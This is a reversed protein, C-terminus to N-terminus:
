PVQSKLWTKKVQLHILFVFTILILDSTNWPNTFFEEVMAFLKRASNIYQAYSSRSHSIQILVNHIHAPEHGRMEYLDPWCNSVLFFPCHFWCITFILRSTGECIMCILNTIISFSFGLWRSKKQSMIQYTGHGNVPIVPTWHFTGPLESHM